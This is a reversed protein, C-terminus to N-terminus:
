KLRGYAYLHEQWYEKALSTYQIPNGCHIMRNEGVYIGVHTVTSSTPYTETFFVLDGPKAESASVPTCEEYLGQATTRSLTKVGSHTFVWCVFGSCDFSTEPNSGGWVYPYGLYQDAEAVLAQVQPDDYAAEPASGANPVAPASGDADEIQELLNLSDLANAKQSDTFGFDDIKEQATYTQITITIHRETYATESSVGSTERVEEDTEQVSYTNLIEYCDSRKKKTEDTLDIDTWEGVALIALVNPDTDIVDSGQIKVDTHSESEENEKLNSIESMFHSDLQEVYATLDPHEETSGTLGGFLAAILTVFLMIGLFIGIALLIGKILEPHKLISDAAGKATKEARRARSGASKVREAKASAAKEWKRGYTYAADSVPVRETTCFTFYQLERHERAKHIGSRVQSVSRATIRVSQAAPNEDDEESNDHLLRSGADHLVRKRLGGPSGFRKQLESRTYIHGGTDKAAYYYKGGKGAQGYTYTKEGPAAPIRKEAKSADPRSGTKAAGPRRFAEESEQRGSQSPPSTGGKAAAPQREKRLCVEKSTGGQVAAPPQEYPSHYRSDKRVPEYRAEKAFDSQYLTSSEGTALDTKVIGGRTFQVVEKDRM